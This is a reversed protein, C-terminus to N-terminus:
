RRMFTLRECKIMVAYNLIKTERFINRYSVFLIKINNTNIIKWFLKFLPEVIQFTRLALKLSIIPLIM